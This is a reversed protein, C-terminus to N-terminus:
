AEFEEIEEDEQAYQAQFSVFTRWAIGFRWKADEFIRGMDLVWPGVLELSENGRIEQELELQTSSGIRGTRRVEFRAASAADETAQQYCNWWLSRAKELRVQDDTDVNSATVAWAEGWGQPDDVDEPLIFVKRRYESM